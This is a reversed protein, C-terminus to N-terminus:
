NSSTQKEERYYQKVDKNDDGKFSFTKTANTVTRIDDLTALSFVPHEARAIEDRRDVGVLVYIQQINPFDECLKDAQEKKTTGDTIVDDLMLVTKVKSLDYGVYSGKEGHTKEEKRNYAFPLSLGNRTFLAISTAVAITIGKYAPGYLVDINDWLNSRLNSCLYVNEFSIFQAYHKGLQLLNRGSCINGINIFIDSKTGNKLTFNGRTVAGCNTLFEIFNKNM